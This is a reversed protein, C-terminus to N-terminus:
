IFPGCWICILLRVDIYHQKKEKKKKKKKKKKKQQQKKANEPGNPSYPEVCKNSLLTASLESSPPTPSTADAM